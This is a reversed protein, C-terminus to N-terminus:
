VIIGHYLLESIAHNTSHSGHAPRGRAQSALSPREGRRRAHLHITFYQGLRCTYMCTPITVYL